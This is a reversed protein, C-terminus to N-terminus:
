NEGLSILFNVMVIGRRKNEKGSLVCEKPSFVYFKDNKQIYMMLKKKNEGARYLLGRHCSVINGWIYDKACLVYDETEFGIVKSLSDKLKTKIPINLRSICLNGAKALLEGASDTSENVDIIEM